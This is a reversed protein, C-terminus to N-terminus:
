GANIRSSGREDANWKRGPVLRMILNRGVNGSDALNRSHRIQMKAKRSTYFRVCGTRGTASAPEAPAEEGFAARLAVEQETSLNSQILDMKTGAFAAAVKDVTTNQTLLFLASTGETVKDRVQKIFDDDIGVDSMHGFLAGMGAGIALGLIPVFFLLGFLMGWFAGSLAGAGTMNHAQETKPKKAGTPWSVLAADNVEILHQRALEQIKNLAQQAGDPTEFKWVTLATM